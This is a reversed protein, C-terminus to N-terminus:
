GLRENGIIHNVIKLADIANIVTDKTTEAAVLYCGTLKETGIIHNVVKLADIANILGNGDTDGVVVIIKQDVVQDNIILKVIMGTAINNGNYETIGDSQYIKLKESDNDLQDKMELATTDVKVTKIMGDEITHGYALSTIKESAQKLVHVTYVNSDAGNEVKMKVVRKKSFDDLTISSIDQYEGDDLAIKLVALPDSVIPTLVMEVAGDGLYAIYDTVEKKFEPSLVGSSVQIDDLTVFVEKEREINITYNKTSGDEATVSIQITNNGQNLSHIGGGVVSSGEYGLATIDIQDVSAPVKVQYSTQNEQFSPSLVGASVSLEKLNANSSKIKQFTISYTRDVGGASTVIVKHVYPFSSVQINELGTVTASTAEKTGSIVLDNDNADIDVTYNLTNQNFAPSLPYIRGGTTEVALHSLFNNAQPLRTVQIQYKKVSGDEATVAIYVMNNNGIQFDVNGEIEVTASADEAVTTLTLKTVEYPVDLTYSTTTPDFSPNLNGELTNLIALQNNSSKERTVELQYIKSTGDEATVVIDTRNVGTNLYWTKNGSVSATADEAIGLIELETVQNAVTFSYSLKSPAFGSVTQQDIQLDSLNNNSSPERYVNITYARFTNNEATVTILISNNGVSLTHDGSGTVTANADEAVAQVNVSTVANGVVAQYTLTERDFSPTFVESMLLSALYNNSSAAKNVIIVYTKTTGDESKTEINFTNLGTHLQKKGTGSVKTTAEEATATIHIDEVSEDVNLSYSIVEKSFDPVIKQGDVALTALDANGNKLRNITIIYNRSTGNASISEVTFQNSGVEIKKSGVGKITTSSDEATAVIELETISNDVQVTYTMTTKNFVAIYNHHADDLVQLDSLYNNSSPQRTIDVYYTNVGGDEATVTISAKTVGVALNTNSTISIHANSDEAVATLNANTVEYPVTLTYQDQEKEFTPTILGDTSTLSSLYNNSSRARHIVVTYIKKVSTDEAVVTIIVTNDGTALNIEGAGTVTSKEDQKVCSVLIKAMNNPVDVHYTLVDPDFAPDLTYGNSLSINALNANRSKARHVTLTYTTTTNDEATVVISIVNDGTKLSVEGIGTVGKAKPDNAQAMVTIKEVTHDVSATYTTDTKVFPENLLSEKISLSKLSSDNSAKRTIVIVYTKVQQDEATVVVNFTNTGTVLSKTGLGTVTAASDEASGQIVVQSVSSDVEVTYSTKEPSFSPSLTHDLVELHALNHNSNLARTIQITYKKKDGSAATVEVEFVNLGTVLNKHGDGVVTQNLPDDLVAQIDVEGVMNDVTIQYTDINPNFSGLYNIGQHVVKLDTLKTNISSKRVVNLNYINTTSGNEATVAITYHNEGVALSNPGGQVVTAGSYEPTASISVTTVEYDVEIRYDNTLKNFSIPYGTVNLSSLYANDSLTRFIEIEYVTKTVGDHAIVEVRITNKGTQLSVTGGGVVTADSDKKTYGIEVSTKDFPVTGYSYSQKTESFGTITTGDVTLDSLASIDKKNRTITITYDKTAGNEARVRVQVTNSGYQLSHKGSGSVITANVDNAIAKINVSDVTGPVTATYLTKTPSFPENLSYSDIALSKLTNDSSQKRSFQIIYTKVTGDEATVVVNAGSDGGSYHGVGSTVTAGSHEATAAIQIDTVTSDYTYTYYDSFTPTFNPSLVGQPDSTITLTALNANNSLRRLHIIYKKIAGSEATVTLTIANDGVILSKNGTGILTAKSDALTATVSVSTKSNAVDALTYELTSSTFGSISVGDIKIDTLDNNTSAAERTVNLTYDQSTCSNGPVSAYQSDCDEAEVTVVRTNLSSGTQTLGWSGLGMKVLAQEHNAQASVTTSSISYPVTATYTYVGTTLSTDLSVGSLSLTKLSADNSLRKIHIAYIEQHGDESQVIINFSNDGVTLTKNGLGGPLVKGKEDTAEAALTVSSVSYPVITNFIRQATGATFLPNLLYDLSNNGTVTLTKLTVDSSMTTSLQFSIDTTTITEKVHDIRDVAMGQATNEFELNLTAGGAVNDKVKIWFSVVVGENVFPKNANQQSDSVNFILQSGTDSPTTVWTTSVKKNKGAGTVTYPWPSDPLADPYTYDDYYFEGDAYVPEFVTNDYNITYNFGLNGISGPSFYVDIQLVQGPQVKGGSTIEDGTGAGEWDNATIDYDYAKLSFEENKAFVTTPFLIGIMVVLFFITRKVRKM